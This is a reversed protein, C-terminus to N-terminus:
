PHSGDVNHILQERSTICTDQCMEECADQCGGLCLVGQNVGNQCTTECGSECTAGECGIGQCSTECAGQCSEECETQCGGECTGQCSEKCLPSERGTTCPPAGVVDVFQCVFQCTSECNQQCYTECTSQCGIECGTICNVECAEQCGRECYEECSAQCSSECGEQCFVQCALQCGSQCGGQCLSECGRECIFQCTNQCGRECVTECAIQCDLQCGKKCTSYLYDPSEGGPIEYGENEYVVVEDQAPGIRTANPPSEGQENIYQCAHQNVFSCPSQDYVQCGAQDCRQCNVQCTVQCGGLCAVECGYECNTECARQCAGHECSHQCYTECTPDPYVQQNMVECLEQCVNMCFFQCNYCHQLRGECFNQCEAGECPDECYQQCAGRCVIFPAADAGFANWQNEEVLNTPIWSLRDQMFSREEWTGDGQYNMVERGRAEDRVQDEGTHIPPPANLILDIYSTWFEKGTYRMRMFPDVDGPNFVEEDRFAAAIEPITHAPKIISVFSQVDQVVQFPNRTNEEELFLYLSFIFVDRNTIVRRLHMDEITIGSTDNLIFLDCFGADSASILKQPMNTSSRYDKIEVDSVLKVYEVIHAPADAFYSAGDEINDKVSGGFYLEVLKILFDRYAESDFPLAYFDLMYGFNRFLLRFTADRLSSDLIVIHSSQMLIAFEESLGWYHTGFTTSSTTTFYNSPLLDMLRDVVRSAEQRRALKHPKSDSPIKVM